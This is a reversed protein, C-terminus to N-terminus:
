QSQLFLWPFLEPERWAATWVAHGYGSLRSFRPHGGKAILAAVITDDWAVPVNGDDTSHFVWIPMSTLRDVYSPDGGSCMPVGAAFVDPWRSMLEWTAFGGMSLGTVYIRRRDITPHTEIIQDVLQKAAALAPRPVLSFRLEKPTTTAVADWHDTPPCQPALIFAPLQKAREGDAL